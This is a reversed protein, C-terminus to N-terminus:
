VMHPLVSKCCYIHHMLNLAIQFKWDESTQSMFFKFEDWGANTILVDVKGFHRVVKDTMDQVEDFKTIDTKIAVADGGLEKIERIVSNAEEERIDVVAVKAGEKAFLLATARGIGRSSGTIITVKDDLLM